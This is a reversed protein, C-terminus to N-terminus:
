MDIYKEREREREIEQSLEFQNKIQPLLLIYSFM